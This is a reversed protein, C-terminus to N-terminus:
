QFLQKAKLHDRLIEEMGRWKYLSFGMVIWMSKGETNCMMRTPLKPPFVRRKFLNKLQKMTLLAM